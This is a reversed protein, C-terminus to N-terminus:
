AWPEEGPQQDILWKLMDLHGHRAAEQYMAQPREEVPWIQQLLPLHGSAIVMLPVSRVDQLDIPCNPVESLMWQLVQPNAGRWAARSVSSDWPCPPQLSRLIQLLELNGQQAAAKCTEVGFCAPRHQRLWAISAANATDIICEFDLGARAQHYANLGPLKNLLELVWVHGADTAESLLDSHWSLWRRGLIGLQANILLWALAEQSNSHMLM